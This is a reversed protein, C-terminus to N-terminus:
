LLTVEFIRQYQTPRWSCQPPAVDHYYVVLNALEPLWSRHLGRIPIHSKSDPGPPWKLSLFGAKRSRHADGGLEHDALNVWM